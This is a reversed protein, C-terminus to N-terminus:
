LEVRRSCTELLREQSFGVKYGNQRAFTKGVAISELYGILACTIAGSLLDQGFSHYVKDTKDTKKGM